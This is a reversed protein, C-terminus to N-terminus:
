TLALNAWAPNGPYRWRLIFLIASALSLLSTLLFACNSLIPDRRFYVILTFLIVLSLLLAFVWLENLSVAGGQNHLYFGYAFYGIAAALALFLAVLAGIRLAKLAKRYSSEAKM